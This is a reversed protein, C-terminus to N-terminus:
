QHCSRKLIQTTLKRALMQARRGDLLTTFVGSTPEFLAVDYDVLMQPVFGPAVGM